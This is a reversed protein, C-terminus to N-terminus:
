GHTPRAKAVWLLLARPKPLIVLGIRYSVVSHCRLRVLPRRKCKIIGGTKPHLGYSVVSHCRLCVLPRKKCKIIGGTKPHLGYSIVSHCRLRVLPRKKCKIIGGTKPPASANTTIHIYTTILHGGFVRPIKLNKLFTSDDFMTSNRPVSSLDVFNM